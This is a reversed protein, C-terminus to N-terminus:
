LSICKKFPLDVPDFNLWIYMHITQISKKPTFVTTSVFMELKYKLKNNGTESNQPLKWAHYVYYSLLVSNSKLLLKYRRYDTPIIYM